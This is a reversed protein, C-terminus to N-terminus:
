LFSAFIIKADHRLCPRDIDVWEAEDAYEGGRM